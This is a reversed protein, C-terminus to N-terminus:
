KIPPLKHEQLYENLTNFIRILEKGSLIGEITYETTSIGPLKLTELKYLDKKTFLKELADNLFLDIHMRTINECKSRLIDRIDVINLIDESSELDWGKDFALKWLDIEDAFIFLAKYYDVAIDDFGENRLKSEIHSWKTSINGKDCSYELVYDPTLKETNIERIVTNEPLLHALENPVVHAKILLNRHEFGHKNMMEITLPSTANSFYILYQAM